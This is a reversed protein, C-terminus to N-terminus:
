LLMVSPLLRDSSDCSGVSPILFLVMVTPNGFQSEKNKVNKVNQDRIVNSSSSIDTLTRGMMWQSGVMADRHRHQSM